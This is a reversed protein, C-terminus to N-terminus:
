MLETWVGRAQEGYWVSPNEIQSFGSLKLPVIRVSFVICSYGSVVIEVTVMNLTNVPKRRSISSGRNTVNQLESLSDVEFVTLSDAGSGICLLM